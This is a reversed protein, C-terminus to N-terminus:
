RKKVAKLLVGKVANIEEDYITSDKRESMKPASALQKISDALSDFIQNSLKLPTGSHIRSVKSLRLGQANLILLLLCLDFVRMM